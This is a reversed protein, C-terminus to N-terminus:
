RCRCMGTACGRTAFEGTGRVPQLVEVPGISGSPRYDYRLERALADPDVYSPQHVQVMVSARDTDLGVV